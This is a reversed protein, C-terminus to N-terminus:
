GTLEDLMLALTQEDLIGSHTKVITGDAAVFYTIPTGFGGLEAPVARDPDFYHQFDLGFEAIFEKASQQDDEVDIGIFTIDDRQQHATKLLPAESRCPLCWSAWVNVVTPGTLDGLVARIGTGDILPLDASEPGDGTTSSATCASLVILLALSMLLTRAFVPRRRVAGM